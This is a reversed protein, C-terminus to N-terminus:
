VYTREPAPKVHLLTRIESLLGLVKAKTQQCSGSNDIVRHALRSKELQSMQGALRKDIESDTLGSREKLRMKLTSEDCTVTWIQQFSKAQDYQGARDAEFLLPMLVASIPAIQSNVWKETYLRVAPYLIGELDTRATYDRYILLGLEHRNVIQSTAGQVLYREGFKLKIQQQVDVDIDLLIQVVRDLDLVPIREDELCKGVFTKGSGITGTIGICFTPNPKTNM